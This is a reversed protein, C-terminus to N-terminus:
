EHRAGRGQDWLAAVTDLEARFQGATTFGREDLFLLTKRRHQQGIAVTVVYRSSVQFGYAMHVVERDVLELAHVDAWPHQRDTLFGRRTVGDASVVTGLRLIRVVVILIVALGALALLATTSGPLGIGWPIASMIGLFVVAAFITYRIM